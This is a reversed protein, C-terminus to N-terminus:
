GAVGRGRVRVREPEVVVSEVIEEDYEAALVGGM